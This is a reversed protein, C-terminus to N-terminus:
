KKGRVFNEIGTLTYIDDWTAECSMCEVSVSHYITDYSKLGVELSDSGCVPCLVSSSKLHKEFLQDNDLEVFEMPEVNHLECFAMLRDHNTCIKVMQVIGLTDKQFVETPLDDFHYDLGLSKLHEWYSTIDKTSNFEWLKLAAM